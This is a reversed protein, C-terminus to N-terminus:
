GGGVLKCQLDYVNHYVVKYKSEKKGFCRAMITLTLVLCTLSAIIPKMNRNDANLVHLLALDPLVCIMLYTAHCSAMVSCDFSYVLRCMSCLLPRCTM